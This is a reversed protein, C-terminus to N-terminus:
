GTGPADPAAGEVGPLAAAAQRVAREMRRVFRIGLLAAAVALGAILGYWLGNAGIGLRFAALLGVPLGVLWFAVLTLLMPVRTDKLGRLAGGAAVQIGDVLQFVAAFGLFRVAHAIMAANRPDGLDAFIGVVTRPISLFVTASICMFGAALVIGARGAARAALADGRGTAQGVRISAAIAIGLPVMFTLSASQMAVQHAALAAEGFRGMLFATVSFLGVEFGHMLSIPWGIRALERLVQLDPVLLKALIARGNFRVLVIGLAAMAMFSYALATSYGAGVLGLAQFGLKGHILVDNGFVHFAVAGFAILTVPRTVSHAEIFARLAAFLLGFPLGFAVARLYAGASAAIGPDQGMLLFLREAQSLILVGPVSAIAVLWLGQRLARGAGQGDGAGVAQATQPGVALMFASSILYILGYGTAGLAMGALPGPGLRGVMLTDVFSMGHQAVQTLVVPAALLLLSRVEFGFTKSRSGTVMRAVICTFRM